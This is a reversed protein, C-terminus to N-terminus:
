LQDEEAPPADSVKSLVHNFQDLSARRSREQLRSWDKARENLVAAIFRDVSVHDQAAQQAAQEYVDDPLQINKM